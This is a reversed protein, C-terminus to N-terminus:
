QEIEYDIFKWETGQKELRVKFIASYNTYPLQQLHDKGVVHLRFRAQAQRPAAGEEITVGLGYLSVSEIAVLAMNSRIFARLSAASARDSADIHAVVGEADNAEGADAAADFAAQIQEVDTVVMREVAIGLGILIAVGAMWFVLVGRGSMWLGVALSAEIFGGIVLLMTPDEYLWEM